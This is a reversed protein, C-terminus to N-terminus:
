LCQCIMLKAEMLKNQRVDKQCSTDMVANTTATNLQPKMNIEQYLRRPSLPSRVIAQCKLVRILHVPEENSRGPLMRLKKQIEFRLSMMFIKFVPQLLLASFKLSPLTIKNRKSIHVQTMKTSWSFVTLM